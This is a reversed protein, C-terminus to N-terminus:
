CGCGQASGPRRPRPATPRVSPPATPAFPVPTPVGQMVQLNMEVTGFPRPVPRQSPPAPAPHPPAPAPGSVSPPPTWPEPTPPVLAPSVMVTPPTSATAVIVSPPPLTAARAEPVSWGSTPDEEVAITRTRVRTVAGPRPSVIPGSPTSTRPAASPSPAPSTWEGINLDDAEPMQHAGFPAEHPLSVSSEDGGAYVSHMETLDDPPVDVPLHVEPRTLDEVPPADLASTIDRQTRSRRVAGSQPEQSAWRGTDAADESSPRRREDQM